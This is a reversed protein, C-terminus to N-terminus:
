SAKSNRTIAEVDDWVHPLIEEVACEMCKSSAPLARNVCGDEDCLRSRRKMFEPIDPSEDM